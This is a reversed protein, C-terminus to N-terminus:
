QCSRAKNKEPWRMAFPVRLAGEFGTFLTGRWPGASGHFANEVTLTNNGYSTAEPGNDATFIVITNDKIDLDDITKLIQGTYNDIQTLM